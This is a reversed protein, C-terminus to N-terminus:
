GRRLVSVMLIFGLTLFVPTIVLAVVASVGLMNWWFYRLGLRISQNLFYLGMLSMYVLTVILLLKTNVTM